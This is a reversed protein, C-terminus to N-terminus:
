DTDSNSSGYSVLSSSLATSSTAPIVENKSKSNLKILGSFKNKICDDEDTNTNPKENFKFLKLDSLNNSILKKEQLSKNLKTKLGNIQM